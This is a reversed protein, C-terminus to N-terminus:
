IYQYIFHKTNKIVNNNYEIIENINLKKNIFNYIEGYDYDDFVVVGNKKLLIKSNEYDKSFIDETHGGDLHILDYRGIEDQNDLIYKSITEVSNGYIINIKTNPFANKVYNITPETYRHLNLDFLLYDAKPNELLMIILSHCGNVGIEMIKKKNKCIYQINRIKEINIACTWNDPSVDCLLNGEIQEGVVKLINTINKIHENEILEM